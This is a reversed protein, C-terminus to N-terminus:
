WTHSLTCYSDRRRLHASSNFGVSCPVFTGICTTYYAVSGKSDAYADQMYSRLLVWTGAPSIESGLVPAPSKILQFGHLPHRPSSPCTPAGALRGTRIVIRARAVPWTRISAFQHPVCQLGRGSSLNRLHPVVTESSIRALRVLPQLEAPTSTTAV